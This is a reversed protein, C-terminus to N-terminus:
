KLLVMKKSRAAGNHEIRAFYVGSAAVSAGAARGDWDVSFAGANREGDFLTAVHAGHADFVRVSVHGRSPVTYSVTTRPNFPNPYNSLSLVYSAPTGGVHSLTNVQAPKGENGSYDTATVYYYVYPSASVNMAPAVAYDVVVASGFSNTNSGYVTFYDFDEASSEDWSLDGTDFVLNQPVGPALNDLSYGSDVPSDYFIEPVATAARIFFVSYHQGLSLTSDALTPAVMSYNTEIHAPISGAFEWDGPPYTAASKASTTVGRAPAAPPLTDIRRYAEYQDIPIGATSGDAGSRSFHIRVRRGQDNGIDVISAIDPAPPDGGFKVLFIENNGASSLNGGGFDITGPFYGTVLVNGLGDVAVATGGESGAGGFRQSWRHIGAPSYSAVFIDTNGAGVLNGGGFNATGSMYGTVVVNGSGDVDVGLGSDGATGGFRQSWQHVGASNYKAVFIDGGASVLNGGGFSVTLQFGGTVVVNGSVDVAVGLGHDSSTSGFRQSWQHVGASNYKAVFIDTDGASVLSGGGFDATGQFYGTVLVNGSGDVAVARAEDNLTDGYRQSWQHVGVSNYKAVFIDTLGASVRNVGGFSVTGQFYGAVLVNGSGDVALAEGLDNSTSGFRQGWQPLGAANIKTVFIDNGGASILGSGTFSIAGTFYGTVFINGSGDVAVARGEDNTTSGFRQSWQHIGASNYKAVFIDNGGSSVLNSGGFNVTGNFYGTMVVNGSGDVAVAYGVDDPNAGFRQSWFHVPAQASAATAAVLNGLIAFCVVLHRISSLM